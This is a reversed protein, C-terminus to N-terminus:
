HDLPGSHAQAHQRWGADQALALAAQLAQSPRAGAATMFGIPTRLDPELLPCAQLGPQGIVTAALAGPLVAALAGEQVAVVLAMVSDTELAPRVKLALSGFVGELLVRNHMEPTLLCLPLAAAQRWSMPRGRPQARLRAGAKADRRQLLHYREVYQPWTRVQPRGAVRDTYGLAIDLSLSDLGQEIDDSSMSRLQPTIGPHRQVLRAVFRAAVPLATPVTGLILRGQPQERTGALTQGLVEQEHLIRRATALVQEGEATLGEYVRSRRVIALGFHEELARLANSLAPQTIHCAAAARGFHRHQALADLYRYADILNM